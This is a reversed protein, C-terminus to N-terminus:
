HRPLYIERGADKIDRRLQRREEPSLRQAQARQIERRKRLQQKNLASSKRTERLEHDSQDVAQALPMALVTVLLTAIGGGIMRKLLAMVLRKEVKKRLYATLGTPHM